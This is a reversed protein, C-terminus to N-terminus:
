PLSAKPSACGSQYSDNFQFVTRGYYTGVGFAWCSLSEWNPYTPYSINTSNGAVDPGIVTTPQSVIPAFFSFAIAAVIAVGALAKTRRRM